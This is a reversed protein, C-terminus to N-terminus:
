LIMFSEIAAAGLLLGCLTLTLKEPLKSSPTKKRWYSYSSKYDQSSAKRSEYIEPVKQSKPTTNVQSDQLNEQEQQQKGGKLFFHKVKSSIAIGLDQSM